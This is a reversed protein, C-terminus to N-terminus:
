GPSAGKAIRAAVAVGLCYPLQPLASLRNRGFEEEQFVQRGRQALGAQCALRNIEAINLGGSFDLRKEFLVTQTEERLRLIVEDLAGWL